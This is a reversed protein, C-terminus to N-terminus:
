TMLIQAGEDDIPLVGRVPQSGPTLFWLFHGTQESSEPVVIITMERAAREKPRVTMTEEVRLDGATVADLTAAFKERTDFFHLLLKGTLHKASTNLLLAAARNANVITGSTDTVLAAMPLRDFLYNLNMDARRVDAQMRKHQLQAGALEQLLTVCFTLADDLLDMVAPAMAAGNNKLKRSRTQLDSLVNTWRRTTGDAMTTKAAPTESEHIM